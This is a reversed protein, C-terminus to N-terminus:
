KRLRRKIKGVLNNVGRVTNPVTNSIHERLIGLTGGQIKIKDRRRLKKKAEKTGLGTRLQFLRLRAHRTATLNVVEVEQPYRRKLENIFETSRASEIIAGRGSRVASDIQAYVAPLAKELLYDKGLAKDAVRVDNYGFEAAKSRRVAGIGINEYGLERALQDAVRSKGVASLGVIVIVKSM